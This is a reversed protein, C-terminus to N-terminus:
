VHPLLTQQAGARAARTTEGVLSGSTRSHGRTHQTCTTSLMRCPMATVAAASSATLRIAFRYWFYTPATTATSMAPDPRCAVPPSKLVCYPIRAHVLNLHVARLRCHVKCCTLSGLGTCCALFLWPPATCTTSKIFSAHQARSDCQADAEAVKSFTQM